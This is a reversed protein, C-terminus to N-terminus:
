KIPMTAVFFYPALCSPYIDGLTEFIYDWIKTGWQREMYFVSKLELPKFGRGKLFGLFAKKNWFRIHPDKWPENWNGTGFPYFIGGLMLIRHYIWGVNPITFLVIGKPRVVRRIEVGAFEPDFLHELVDLCLVVDFFNDPYPLPASSLDLVRAKIGYKQAHRIAKKSIDVGYYEKVKKVLIKGYHSGDGCGVDLLVSDPQLYKEILKLKKPSPKNRKGVWHKWCTEYFKRITNQPKTNM